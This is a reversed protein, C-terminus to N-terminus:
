ENREVAELAALCDVREQSLTGQCDVEILDPSNDEDEHRILQVEYWNVAETTHWVYNYKRCVYRRVVATHQPNSQPSWGHPINEYDCMLALRELDSNSLLGDNSLQKKM